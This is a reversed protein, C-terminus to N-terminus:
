NGNGDDAEQEEETAIELVNKLGSFLGCASLGLPFGLLVGTSIGYDMMLGFVLVGSLIGLALDVVPLWKAPFGLRKMIEALACIIAVQAVPTMMYETLERIDM